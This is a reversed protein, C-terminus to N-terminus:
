KDVRCTIIDIGHYKRHHVESTYHQLIRVSMEQYDADPSANDGLFGLRDELNGETDEESVVVFEIEASAGDPHINAVLRRNKSDGNEGSTGENEEELLHLLVEEGVLRLHTKGSEPWAYKDAFRCLFDDVDPLASRALDVRLKMNRLNSLETFATMGIAALGGVVITSSLWPTFGEALGGFSGASLGMVMSVGIIAARKQTVQGAFATKAGEIFLMGFVIVYVASVVPTPIAVLLAVLKSFPAIAVTFLGLYLGVAKSAIGTFGVYVVTAAWPAAVPLTGLLGSFMTGAGYVKLGAQVTRFDPVVSQRYSASYIVSLDGVVKLFATLNVIVFAPLLAWFAASFSLDLGPWVDVPVSVWPANLVSGVDYLGLPAAVIVGALVTAPLTWLRWRASGQLSIVIGVGLAVIGPTLFLLVRMDEPPIVARSVIFPVASVAVLMVITGSVTQTFIRRLYALRLTLVIQVLTSAVILSALLGPGGAHLALASVSLFPVNFNTVVVRGSGVYRHGLSHLITGLGCMALATFVVWALYEEPQDASRVVLTALMVVSITNPLFIQLASLIALSPPCKDEPEYRIQNM